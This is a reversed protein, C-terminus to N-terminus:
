SLFIYENTSYLAMQYSEGFKLIITHPGFLHHCNVGMIMEDLLRDILSNLIVQVARASQNSYPTNQYETWLHSQGSELNWVTLKTNRGRVFFGVIQWTM